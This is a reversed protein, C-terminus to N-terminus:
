DLFNGQNTSKYLKNIFGSIGNDYKVGNVYVDGKSDTVFDAPSYTQDFGTMSLTWNNQASISYSLFLILAVSIFKRTRKM